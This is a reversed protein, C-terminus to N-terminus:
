DENRNKLVQEIEEIERLIIKCQKLSTEPNAFDYELKQLIKLLEQTSLEYYDM